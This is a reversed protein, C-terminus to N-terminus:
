APREGVPASNNGPQHVVHRRSRQPQSFRRLRSTAPEATESSGAPHIRHMERRGHFHPAIRMEDRGPTPLAGTISLESEALDVIASKGAATTESGSTQTVLQVVPTTYRDGNSRLVQATSGDSLSVYSGIPFLSLVRLLARAVVPDADRGADQRLLCEMAAYPMIPSRYPRPSTMAVYTGAVHLVRAFLHINAGARGQPYGGGDPREHIQYSVLPVLSPLGSSRSLMEYSYRPHKKVELMEIETLARRAERIERPVRLMGWDHLLGTVGIRHVNEANLGMEVGIAMGLLSMQLCHAALEQNQALEVPATLVNEGDHALEKLYASALGNVEEANLPSNQSLAQMAGTMSTTAQRHKETLEKRQDADFAECGRRVVRDRVAPGRNSILLLESGVAADFRRTVDSNFLPPSAPRPTAAAPTEASDIMVASLSAADIRFQDIGRSQLREKFERSIVM